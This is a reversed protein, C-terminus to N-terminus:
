PKRSLLPELQPDTENFSPLKQFGSELQSVSLDESRSKVLSQLFSSKDKPSSDSTKTTENLSEVHQLCVQVADHVRM